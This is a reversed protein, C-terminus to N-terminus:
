LHIFGQIFYAGTESLGTNRVISYKEGRSLYCHTPLCLVRCVGTSDPSPCLSVTINHPLQTLLGTFYAGQPASSSPTMFIPIM